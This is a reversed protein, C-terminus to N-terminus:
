TSQTKIHDYVWRARDLVELRSGGEVLFAGFREAHSAPPEIRDGSRKYFELVKLWPQARVADDGAIGKLIGPPPFFYRLAAYKHWKETLKGLDPEWGLSIEIITQVINVGTTVPILGASMWGGSLRAAMEIMRPKGEADLAVDGKGVGRTIGLTRAAKELLVDIEKLKDESLISPMTGGNEVPAGMLQHAMDYNRDSVGATKFFGDYIISETSEQEGSLFEEVIVKGEYSSAKAREFVAECDMGEALKTIGRAGSRDTPKVILDWGRAQVIERLHKGSHLENFWPIPIGKEAWRRKMALKNSALWATERSIAQLGLDEALVAVTMSIESGMTVVADIPRHTRYARVFALLGEIDRTSILAKEDAHPFSAAAPDMDVALVYCGMRKATEILYFQDHSAGLVLVTPQDNM